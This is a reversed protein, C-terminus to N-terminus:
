LPLKKELKFLDSSKERTRIEYLKDQ